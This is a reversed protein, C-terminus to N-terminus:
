FVVALSKLLQQESIDECLICNGIRDPLYLDLRNAKRKKDDLSKSIIEQASVQFSVQTPLEFKKLVGILDTLTQESTIGLDVALRTEACMGLAIAEGHRLPKSTLHSLSEIAHGITHGFNLIKRIGSEREDQSVIAAKLQCSRTIVKSLIDDNLATPDIELLYSFYDGDMTLAHKIVEAFGNCFEAYPLSSLTKTDIIVAKPPAFVGILNKVEEFNIAVKGGVSADVASLLTTPCHIFDMGRMYTAAAFGALDTLMGGGVCLLLSSRDFKEKHLKTWLATLTSINKDLENGSISLVVANSLFKEGFWEPIYPLLAQDTVIGIKSYGSIETFESVSSLLNSGIFITYSNQGSNKQVIVKESLPM